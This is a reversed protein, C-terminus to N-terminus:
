KIMELVSSKLCYVDVDEGFKSRIISYIESTYGPAIIIIAEVPNDFFYEAPVIKIHSAPSFRGQKFEASDIIYKIKENLKSTAALTFGQHSAGWIAVKNYKNLLDNISSNLSITNNVLASVDIKKRKQVYISLTDRNVIEKSIVDFGNNNFLLSLTEFTYYAIHDKILEYYGNNNIIYEFSPVTVLGCGEETLNDYIVRVMSNPDPQHELFNFSLFADYPGGPIKEMNADAFSCFVKLGKRKAQEVLEPNNEIGCFEVPFGNLFQLFDGRGCGIEVIKKDKLNFRSIFDKYQAIRLDRMTSTTGGSRIVDKYYSVPECNFQVLGCGLCQVLELTEGKDKSLDDASPLDQASSPMNELKLLSVFQDNRECLICKKM